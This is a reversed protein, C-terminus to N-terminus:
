NWCTVLVTMDAALSTLDEPAIAEGGDARAFAVDNANLFAAIGGADRAFAVADPLQRASEEAPLLVGQVAGASDFVPGGVDGPETMLTLRHLSEDGDLGRVDALTGFTVSPAPLVGGFSYGSVAIDDNLGPETEALRAFALPALPSAPALLTVGLTADTARITAATEGGIEVRACGDVAGSTTLVDGSDSIFFGSSAREPKRITLGALLDRSQRGSTADPLVGPLVEFSQEIASLALQRRYGDGTPWVLLYGKITDGTLRAFAQTTIEENSGTLTFDARRLARAGDLPVIELSQLVDYLAALSTRNGKQSILIAREGGPGEYHAFPAEYRDFQVVGLPLVARIGADEDTVPTLNLATLADRYTGVLDRRQATTLIGTAEFGNAAQWAGMARRTGPGFSADIVSNYFGSARLANQIEERDARSLQREAARAEAPTEEGAVPEPLPAAAPVPAPTRGAGFFRVDFSAGDALFSDGPIAASARLQLLRTRAEDEPYPGLAIAFWGSNLSYGNVDPLRAAYDAARETAQAETPRAEIQIWALEQAAASGGALVAAALAVAGLFKKM